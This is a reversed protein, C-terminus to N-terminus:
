YIVTVTVPVRTCGGKKPHHADMHPARMNSRVKKKDM